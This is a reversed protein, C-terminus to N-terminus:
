ILSTLYISVLNSLLYLSVQYYIDHDYLEGIQNCVISEQLNDYHTKPSKSNKNCDHFLDSM